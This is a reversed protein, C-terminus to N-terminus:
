INSHTRKKDKTLIIWILFSFALTLIAFCKEFYTEALINGVTNLGFLVFFIWLVINVFKLPIFNRLYKGKILLVAFLCLNIVMSIAEVVYMESDNELRGGWTIEYPLIKLIITLHFLMVAVLLWLMIKIAAKSKM